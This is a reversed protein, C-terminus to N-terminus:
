RYEEPLEVEPLDLTFEWRMSKSPVRADIMEGRDLHALGIVLLWSVVQSRPLNEAEAIKDLTKLLDDSLDIMIRNRQRDAAARKRQAATMGREKAMRGYLADGGLASQVAPDIANRREIKKTM